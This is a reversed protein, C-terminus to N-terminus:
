PYGRPWGAFITIRGRLDRLARLNPSLQKRPSLPVAPLGATAGWFTLGTPNSGLFHCGLLHCAFLQCALSNRGPFHYGPPIHDACRSVVSDSQLSRADIQPSASPDHLGYTIHNLRSSEYTGGRRQVQIPCRERDSRIMFQASRIQIWLHGQHTFFQLPLSM